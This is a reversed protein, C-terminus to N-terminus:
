IEVKISFKTYLAPLIADYSLFYQLAKNVVVGPGNLPLGPTAVFNMVSGWLVM